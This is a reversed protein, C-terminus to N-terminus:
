QHVCFHLNENGLKKCAIRVVDLCGIVEELKCSVVHGLLTISEMQLTDLLGKEEAVRVRYRGQKCTAFIGNSDDSFGHFLHKGGKFDDSWAFSKGGVVNAKLVVQM